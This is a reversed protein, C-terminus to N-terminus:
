LKGSSPDYTREGLRFHLLNSLKRRQMNIFKYRFLYYNLNSNEKCTKGLLTKVQSIKRPKWVFTLLTKPKAMDEFNWFCEGVTEIGGGTRTVGHSWQVRHRKGVHVDFCELENRIDRALVKLNAANIATVRFRSTVCDCMRTVLCECIM